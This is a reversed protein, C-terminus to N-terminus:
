EIMKRGAGGVGKNIDLKSGAAHGYGYGSTNGNVYYSARSTRLSTYKDMMFRTALARKSIVMLGMETNPKAIEEEVKTMRTVIADVAGMLFSRCWVGKRGGDVAKNFDRKLALQLCIHIKAVLQEITYVAALVNQEEGLISKVFKGKSRLNVVRCMYSHAVASTLKAAWKADQYLKFAEVDFIHELMRIKDQVAHDTVQQETLNHKLLMEQYKSAANAAEEFSGVANAGDELNKLKRLKELIENVSM